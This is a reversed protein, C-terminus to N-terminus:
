RFQRDALWPLDSNVLKLVLEQRLGVNSEPNQYIVKGMHLFESMTFSTNSAKFKALALAQLDAIDYYLAVHYMNAHMYLVNAASIDQESEYRTIAQAEKNPQNPRAVAADSKPLNYDGQYLFVLM